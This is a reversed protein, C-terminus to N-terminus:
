QPQSSVQSLWLAGFFITNCCSDLCNLQSLIKFCNSDIIKMNEKLDIREKEERTIQKTRRSLQQNMGHAYLTLTFACLSIYFIKKM